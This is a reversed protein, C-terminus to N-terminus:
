SFAQIIIGLASYSFYKGTIFSCAFGLFFFIGKPVLYFSGQIHSFICRFLGQINGPCALHVPFNGFLNKSIKMAPEYQLINTKTNRRYFCKRILILLLKNFCKFNSVTINYIYPDLDKLFWTFVNTGVKCTHSKCNFINNLVM